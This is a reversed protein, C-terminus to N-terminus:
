PATCNAKLWAITDVATEPISLYTYMNTDKEVFTLHWATYRYEYDFMRGERCENLVVKTLEPLLRPDLYMADGLFSVHVTSFVPNENKFFAIPQSLYWTTKKLLEDDDCYYERYMTRGNKLEYTFLVTDGESYVYGSPPESTCTEAISMHLSSIDAIIAPDSSYFDDNSYYGRGLTVKEVQGTEPIRNVLNLPDLSTVYLSGVFVAVLCALGGVIRLTFVRASKKSLMWYSFYGITGGLLLIVPELDYGLFVMVSTGTIASCVAFFPDMWSAALLDGAHELKRRRYLLLSAALIAVSIMAICGIYAWDDGHIGTPRRFDAYSGVLLMPCLATYDNNLYLGPLLPLYLRDIILGIIIPFCQIFLYLLAAGIKRGTLMMCLIGISFLLLFELAIFIFRYIASQTGYDRTVACFIATPVLFMVFAAAVHIMFLRERRIPLSHVMNCETPDCLYGFVVLALIPALVPAVPEYYYGDYQQVSRIGIAWLIMWACLGLWVPAFRTLDKRFLTFDCSLTKSRM